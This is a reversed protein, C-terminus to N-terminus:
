AHPAKGILAGTEQAEPADIAEFFAHAATWHRHALVLDDAAAAVDGLGRLTRGRWLPVDLLNWLHLADEFNTRARDLEDRRLYLEGLNRLAIGEGYRENIERCILVADRLHEEAARADGAFTYLEGLYALAFAEGNRQGIKRCITLSESLAAEADAPQQQAMHASGISCLVLAVTFEDGLRRALGAAEQYCALADTVRGRERHATGLSYLTEALGNSDDLGRFVALAQELSNIAASPDGRLRHAVGIARRVHAQAPREDLDEFIAIAADLYRLSDGYRDKDMWLEGLGRLMHAEGRANGALRTAGLATEYTRLCEDFYGRVELFRGLCSALDWALEDLGLTVAQDVAALLAPWESDFWGMPDALVRQLVVSNAPRRPATSAAIRSIGGPLGDQAQEALDLWVALVRTLAVAQADVPEDAEARERAYLRVLDHLGYWVTGHADTRVVEVLRADALDELLAEGRAEGVDLLQGSVWGAFENAALSGLLRFLHRQPGPLGRYSLEISSRVARDGAVLSDLRNREDGLLRAFRALSWHPRTALRAGAIRIALPLHGCLRTLTEAAMPEAAVRHRGAARELLGLSESASFTGLDLFAASDLATLRRRGTVLVACGGGAPLLPRVQAESEADDLVLIVRRVAMEARFTAAREDADDPVEFDEGNLRRLVRRLVHDPALPTERLGRLNVYIQGDPFQARLLHATHIALTTKGTGGPGSIVVVSATRAEDLDRAKAILRSRLFGLVKERGTFDIIDPPLERPPEPKALATAGSTPTIVDVSADNALIAEHVRRLRASPALGFENTLIQHGDRFVQLADTQRGSRHLAIMLSCRLRDRLPHAGVLDRLEPVIESHRGVLLEAEVCDEIAALKEEVLNTTEKAVFPASVDGLAPGRWLDVAARLATAAEAAHGAAVDAHGAAVKARFQTLDVRGPEIELVYGGPRTILWPQEEKPPLDRGLLRRLRWVGTQIQGLATDPPEGGWLAAILVDVPVFENVNLLLFALLARQRHGGVTLSCGDLRVDLPGLVGAELERVREMM